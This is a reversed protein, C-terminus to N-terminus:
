LKKLEQEVELWYRYNPNLEGRGDGIYTDVIFWQSVVEKVAILACKIADQIYDTHEHMETVINIAKEKPTM